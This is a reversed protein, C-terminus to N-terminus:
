NSSTEVSARYVDFEHKLRAAIVPEADLRNNIEYRDAKLNYLYAPEGKPTLLLKWDGDRVAYELGDPTPISWYFLRERRVVTEPDADLLSTISAGDITRDAPLPVDLIEALTPLVDLVTAPETEVQGVPIRGPWSFIGPVRIGGEHLFRKKGRLGDTEGALGIEWPMEVQTTLPGNDSSFMVLTNDILGSQRLYALVRGLQEDLFTINAYYEGKGRYPRDAWDMHYSWPNRRSEETLYQDYQRVLRLPSAIPAHVESYTLFLFFPDDNEQLWAIAEDSVLEASFKGTEGVPVNNRFMNDPYLSGEGAQAAKENKVWAALGYQHDFGFDRPQPADELHLGGNLHWKGIVATRYGLPKVLQAITVEDRGLAVDSEDPIWSQIGTRYPTRGTLLGARSPSCLASAAYFQTFRVGDAALRDINPTEVVPHGYVATDGYGLDDVYILLINPREALSEASILLFLILLSRM